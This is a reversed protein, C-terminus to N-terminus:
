TNQQTFIEKSNIECFFFLIRNKLRVIKLPFHDHPRIEHSRFEVKKM